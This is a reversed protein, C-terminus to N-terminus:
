AYLKPDTIDRIGDGLINLFLITFFIGLGPFISIWPARGLYDVGTRIMNGWSPTPPPVGLGIFSLSSEIQIATGIWLVASVLIEGFINPLIHYLLIRPLPASISYAAEIYEKNKLGLTSGYALRAFRPTMVLAIVMIAKFLGPGLIAMVGIGLILTPFCMLVDVLRMILMELLGGIYAAIMGITTGLLCGLTISTIAAILSIRAGNVVRSLVDRGHNDTGLPHARAPPSFCMYPDQKYPTFPTIAPAFAAILLIIVFGCAGVVALKNRAFVKLLPPQIM